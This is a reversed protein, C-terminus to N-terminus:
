KNYENFLYDYTEKMQEYDYNACLEYNFVGDYGITELANLVKQWDIKGQTPLWHREDVYDHDSVHTTFIPKGIKIIADEVKETLFHNLDLCIKVDPLISLFKNVEDSTNLLCTRPLNEVCIVQSTKDKLYSISKVLTDFFKQRDQQLIPEGSGHFVYCRPNLKDMEDFTKCALALSKQRHSEDPTSLDILAGFPMHVANLMIGNDDLVKKFLPYHKLCEEYVDQRRFIVVNLDISDFGLKKLRKIQHEFNVNITNEVITSVSTGLKLKYM